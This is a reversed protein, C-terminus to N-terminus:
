VNVGSIGARREISAKLKEPSIGAKRAVEEQKLQFETKKEPPKPKDGPRSSGLTEDVGKLRAIEAEKAELDAKLKELESPEDDKKSPPEKQLRKEMEAAVLEPGNEKMLYKEPDEKVIEACLRFKENEKSLTAQIEDSSKGADKLEKERKATDLEPHKVLVRKNSEEQKTMFDKVFKDKKQANIDAMRERSRRLSRETMWEQASVMDELLWDELEEKSMERREEKAKSKDEDLYKKLREEEKTKLLKQEEPINKEAEIKSKEKKLNDIETQLKAAEEKLKPNTDELSKKESILKDIESQIEQKRKNVKDEPALKKDLIEQKRTKEDASLEEEKKSLLEEDKKAQEEAKAILAKEEETKPEESSPDSAAGKTEAKKKNITELTEKAIQEPTKKEM